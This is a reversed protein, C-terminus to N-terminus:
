KAAANNKKEGIKASKADIESLEKQLKEKRESMRKQQLAEREARLADMSTKKQEHCKQADEKKTASNICSIASDIITKEKNLQGVMETKHASFKEGSQEEQAQASISVLMSLVLASTIKIKM